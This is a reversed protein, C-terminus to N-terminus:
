LGMVTYVIDTVIGESEIRHLVPDLQSPAGALFYEYGSPEETMLECTLFAEEGAVDTPSLRRTTHIVASKRLKHSDYAHEELRTVKNLRKVVRVMMDKDRESCKFTMVVTGDHTAQEEAGHGVVTQISIGRNSFASAISTLAGARDQVHARFVWHRLEGGNM